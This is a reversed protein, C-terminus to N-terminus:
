KKDAAHSQQPAPALLDVLSTTAAEIDLWLTDLKANLMRHMMFAPIAVCLGAATTLLAEWIGGALMGPNAQAGAAYEDALSSFVAIMGTVTGLLGLLPSISAISGLAPIFRELKAAQRRGADSIIEQIGERTLSKHQLAAKALEALPGPHNDCLTMAREIQNETVAELLPTKLAETRKQAQRLAILREVFFVIAAISCLIIFIMVIGGKAIFDFAQTLIEPM